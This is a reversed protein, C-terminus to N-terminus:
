YLIKLINIIFFFGSGILKNNSIKCTSNISKQELERLKLFTIPKGHGIIKGENIYSSM